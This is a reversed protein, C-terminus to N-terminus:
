HDGRYDTYEVYPPYVDKCFLVGYGDGYNGCGVGIEGDGFDAHPYSSDYQNVPYNQERGRM